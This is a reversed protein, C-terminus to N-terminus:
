ERQDFGLDSGLGLETCRRMLVSGLRYVESAVGAGSEDRTTRFRCDNSPGLGQWCDSRTDCTALVSPDSGFESDCDRISRKRLRCIM